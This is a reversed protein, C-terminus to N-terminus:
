HHASHYACSYADFYAPYACRYASRCACRYASSKQYGCLEPSQWNYNPPIEDLVDARRASSFGLSRDACAPDVDPLHVHQNMITEGSGRWHLLPAVLRRFGATGLARLCELGSITHNQSQQFLSVPVDCMLRPPFRIDILLRCDPFLGLSLRIGVPVFVGFARDSLGVNEHLSFIM